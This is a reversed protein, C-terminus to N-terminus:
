CLITNAEGVCVRICVCMYECVVQTLPLSYGLSNTDNEQEHVRGVCACECVLFLSFREYVCVCM